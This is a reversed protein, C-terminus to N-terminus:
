LHARVWHVIGATDMAGAQRAVEHGARFLVLTPISRIGLRGALGQERETDVKALRVSPELGSAAAAFAPAMSKCPGCWAAWFDVLLPLDGRELHRRFGQETLAVPAASFLAERCGGCKPAHGLRAQPLRNVALCRPCVVHVTHEM